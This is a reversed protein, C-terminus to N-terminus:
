LAITMESAAALEALSGVLLNPREAKLKERSYIGTAVAIVELGNARAAQVDAPTDGVACVAAGTRLRKRLKVLATRFVEARSECGDSWGGLDFFPRLGCQQLKAEGIRAFNGTATSLVAGRARLHALLARVGPLVQIRLQGRNAEVQAGMCDRIEDLRPRWLAEDVGGRAFADRLIAADVNGHTVVGDLNLPRGAVKTLADCFAFYHVADTCNLLTGDIDFLYGDFADWPRSLNAQWEM